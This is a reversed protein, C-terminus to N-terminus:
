FPLSMTSYMQLGLVMLYSISIPFDGFTMHWSDQLICLGVVLSRMKALASILSGCM